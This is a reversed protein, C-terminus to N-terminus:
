PRPSLTQPKPDSLTSILKNLMKMIETLLGDLNTFEMVNIFQLEKALLLQTELEAGSAFAIRLFQIYEQRHSRTYGEAINSPISVTCRRMQSVLGYIESKPFKSTTLYIKKSLEFSKQWVILENYSNLM